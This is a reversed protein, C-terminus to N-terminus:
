FGFWPETIEVLLSNRPATCAATSRNRPPTKRVGVSRERVSECSM